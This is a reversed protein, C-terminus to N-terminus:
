SGNRRRRDWLALLVYAPGIVRVGGTLHGNWEGSKPDEYVPPGAIAEFVDVIRDPALTTLVGLVGLFQQLM